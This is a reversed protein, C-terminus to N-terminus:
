EDTMRLRLHRPPKAAVGVRLQVGLPPHLEVGQSLQEGRLRDIGNIAAAQAAGAARRLRDGSNSLYRLHQPRCQSLNIEPPPFTQAPLLNFPHIQFVRPLPDCAKRMKGCRRPLAELGELCADKLLHMTKEVAVGAGDRHDRM